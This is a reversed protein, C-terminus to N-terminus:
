GSLTIGPSSEVPREELIAEKQSWSWRTPLDQSIFEWPLASSGGACASRSRLCRGGEQVTVEMGQEWSPEESRM